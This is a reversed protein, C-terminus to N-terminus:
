TMEPSKKLLSLLGLVTDEPKTKLWKRVKQRNRILAQASLDASNDTGIPGRPRLRRIILRYPLAFRFGALHGQEQLSRNSESNFDLWCLNLVGRFAWRAAESSM